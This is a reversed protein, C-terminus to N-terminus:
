KLTTHNNRGEYTIDANEHMFDSASSNVVINKM